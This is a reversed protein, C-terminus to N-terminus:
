GLMEAFVAVTPHPAARQQAEQRWLRSLARFVASVVWSRLQLLWRHNEQCRVGATHRGRLLRPHPVGVRRAYSLDSEARLLTSLPLVLALGLLLFFGVLFAYADLCPILQGQTIRWALIQAQHTSTRGSGEIGLANMMPTVLGIIM